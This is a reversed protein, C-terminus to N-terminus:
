RRRRRALLTDEIQSQLTIQTEYDHCVFSSLYEEWAAIKEFLNMEAYVGTEDPAEQQQRMLDLDVKESSGVTTPADPSAPLAAAAEEQVWITLPCGLHHQWPMYSEPHVELHDAYLLRLRLCGEAIFDIVGLSKQDGNQQLVLSNADVDIHTLLLPRTGYDIEVLLPATCEGSLEGDNSFTLTIPPFGKPRSVMKWSGLKFSTIDNDYAGRIGMEGGDKLYAEHAIRERLHPCLRQHMMRLMRSVGGPAIEIHLNAHRKANGTHPNLEVKDEVRVKPGDEAVDARRADCRHLLRLLTSVCERGVSVVRAPNRRGFM